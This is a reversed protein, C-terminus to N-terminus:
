QRRTPATAFGIFLFAGAAVPGLDRTQPTSRNLGQLALGCGPAMEARQLAHRCGPVVISRNPLRRSVLHGCPCRHFCIPISGPEDSAGKRSGFADRRGGLAKRAAATFPYERVMRGGHDEVAWIDGPCDGPLRM